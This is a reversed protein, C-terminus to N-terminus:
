KPPWSRVHLDRQPFPIGVGKADLIRNIATNLRDTVVMRLMPDAVFVRVEFDLSSDGHGMFLIQPAPDALVDADNKAAELLYARVADPDSGYEVGIKIVLRSIPDALTWNVVDQTILERNPVIVEQRDANSVTTARINIRQVRGTVSGVSVLDGVRVPREVLLILGSVFNSVIEQLGFGLGVGMAAVLWGVNTLDLRIQRLAVVIGVFFLGYRSITVIAYRLGTDVRMRPFLALDYIGPLHRLLWVTLLLVGAATILNALTVVRASGDAAPAVHYVVVSDLTHWGQQDVGWIRAVLVIAVVVFAVRLLALRRRKTELRGSAGEYAEGTPLERAGAGNGLRAVLGTRALRYAAALVALAVVSRLEAAGLRFATFRFGIADLLPVAFLLIPLAARWLSRWAPTRALARSKEVGDMCPSGPRFTRWATAAVVASFATWAVRGLARAEVHAATLLMGPFLCVLIALLTTTWARLLVRRGAPTSWGLRQFVGGHEFAARGLGRLLVFAAIGLLLTRLLLTESGGILALVAAVAALVAPGLTIPLLLEAIATPAAPRSPALNGVGALRGGSRWALAGALFLVLVYSWQWPRDRLSRWAELCERRTAEALSGGASVLQTWAKSFTTATLPPEDRIWLVRTRIFVDLENLVDRREAQLAYLQRALGGIGDLSTKEANLARRLGDRLPFRKARLAARAYESLGSAAADYQTKWRDNLDLLAQEVEVKRARYAVLREAVEGSVALDNARREGGLSRFTSRIMEGTYGDTGYKTVYERLRELTARNRELAAQQDEAIRALVLEFAELKPLLNSVTAIEAEWTAGIREVPETAAAAARRKDALEQDRKAQEAALATDRASRYLELEVELRELQQDAVDAALLHYESLEAANAKERQELDIVETAVRAELRANEVALQHLELEDGPVASGTSAEGERARQLAHERRRQQAAVDTEFNEARRSAEVLDAHLGDAEKRKAVVRDRLVDVDAASPAAPVILAPATAQSESLARLRKIRGPIERLLSDLAARAGVVERVEALLALRLDIEARLREASGGAVADDSLENRRKTLTDIAVTIAAATLPGESRLALGTANEAAAVPGALAAAVCAVVLAEVVYRWLARRHSAFTWM